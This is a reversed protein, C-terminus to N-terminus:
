KKAAPAPTTTSAAPATSANKKVGTHKKVVKKTKMTGTSAGPKTDTAAPAPATQAAFAAGALALVATLSTITKM